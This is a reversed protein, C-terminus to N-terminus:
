LIICSNCLLTCCFLLNLHKGYVYLVQNNQVCPQYEIVKIAEHIQASGLDKVTLLSDSTPLKLLVEM